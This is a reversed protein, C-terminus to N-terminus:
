YFYKEIASDMEDMAAVSAANREFTEKITAKLEEAFQGIPVSALVYVGGDNQPAFQYKVGVLVAEAKQISISEFALLAQMNEASIEGADQVYTAVIAKVSNNVYQAVASNANAKAWERSIELTSGKAYGVEYHYEKTDAPPNNWWEGELILNNKTSACSVLGLLFLVAVFGIVNRKM